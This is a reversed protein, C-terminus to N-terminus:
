DLLKRMLNFSLKKELNKFSPLLDKSLIQIREFNNEYGFNQLFSLLSVNNQKSGGHFTIILTKEFHESETIIAFSAGGNTDCFIIKKNNELSQLTNDDIPLWRWSKIYHSFPIKKFNSGFKINKAVNPEPNISYFNWTEMIAYELKQAMYLSSTNESDILMYSSVINKKIAINEVHSILKSAFHRRRFLPNIRIGEIWVQNKSFFAHCIGVPIKDELVFLNGEKIWYKWVSDIYDGWSFTNKCFELINTM